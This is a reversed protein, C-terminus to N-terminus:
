RNHLPGQITRYSAGRGRLSWVRRYLGSCICNRNLDCVEIRIIYIPQLTAADTVTGSVMGAPAMDENATTTSGETVSVEMASEYAPADHYWELLHRGSNDYFYVKYNGTPLGGVEYHGYDDTWGSSIWNCEHNLGYVQIDVNGIPQLTASDTVTGSITGGLVM